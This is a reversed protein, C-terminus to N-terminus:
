IKIFLQIIIVELLLSYLALNLNGRWGQALHSMNRQHFFM